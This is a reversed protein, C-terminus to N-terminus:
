LGGIHHRIEKGEIAILDLRVLSKQMNTKHLYENVAVGFREFKKTDIASEPASSARYKVEVFVLTDGDLAIIDVEGGKCTFRRTVLTYGLELLYNAALDEYYNGVKRNNRM